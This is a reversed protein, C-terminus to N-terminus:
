PFHVPLRISAGFGGGPLPTASVQLDEPFDWLHASVYAEIGAFLHNFALLVLWDQKEQDKAAVSSSNTRRLYDLEHSAKISMGLTVGEWTIFLAGTLKRNLKAQGWGPILLSRWLAGMPSVPSRSVAVAAASDFVVNDPAYASDPNAWLSDDVIATTSDQARLSTAGAVVLLGLLMVTKM